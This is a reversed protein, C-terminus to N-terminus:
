QKVLKKVERYAPGLLILQYVANPLHSLDLTTELGTLQGEQLLVGLANYLQYTRAKSTNSLIIQTYDRLPNPVLKITGEGFDSEFKVVRIPSYSITGDLDQQRLRYYYEAGPEIAKDLYTYSTQGIYGNDSVLELAIFKDSGAVQREITFDKGQGDQIVEWNLLSHDRKPQATFALWEVPLATAFVITRDCSFVSGGPTIAEVFFTSINGDNLDSYTLTASLGTGINFVSSGVYLLYQTAGTVAGWSFTVDSMGNVDIEFQQGDIPSVNPVDDAEITLNLGITETGSTGTALITLSYTGDAVGSLNTLEVDFTNGDSVTSPNFNINVSGPLDTSQLSITAPGTVPGDIFGVEFTAASEGECISIPSDTNSLSSNATTFNRTASNTGTASCSTNIAEVFWTYSEPAILPPAGVSVSTASTTFINGGGDSGRIIYVKYQDANPDSTWSFTTNGSIGIVVNDAPTLLTVAAPAGEVVLSLDLSKSNSGDDAIVSFDYTGGTLGSLNGLTITVGLPSNGSNLNVPNGTSYSITAGSPLNMTTFSISGSYGLLSTLEFALNNDTNTGECITTSATTATIAFDEQVIAFNADSYDYFINDTCSIRIRADTEAVNPMTVSETGDNPTSAVLTTYTAGGDLSIEIEVNACDVATGSGTGGVDWTVAYPSNALASEGGNPSTVEFPGVDAVTVTMDDQVPCGFGVGTVDRLTVKFNLDRAVSPLAEWDITGEVFRSPSSNPLLSRMIPGNAEAGTPETNLASGLDYQEWCYTLPNTDPDSGTATLVFPTSKPITYDDGAMVSPEANAYMPDTIVTACSNGGGNVMYATMEIISAAHYYPDSNSQVNSIGCIGAYAQITSGSGPEYAVSAERQACNGNLSNFTHNGGFQHGLEHAVFDIYFPDGTPSALGTVGQAKFAASCPSNLRAIGGGGTSFVHGIDYNSTGIVADLTTQNQGLMASGNNNSYPDTTPNDYFVDTTNAILILRIGLDAETVENVRSIATTVESLVLPDTGGHFNYYEGTTAMALRYSRFTCDSVKEPGSDKGDTLDELISAETGCSHDLSTNLPYDNTYYVQYLDTAGIYLPEIYWHGNQDGTVSAHFGKYTWDLRIRRTPQDIDYGLATVIEPFRIALGKEMMQYRVIHFRILQGDPSPLELMHGTDMVNNFAPQSPSAHIYEMLVDAEVQYFRAENPVVIRAAEPREEASPIEEFVPSQALLVNMSISSFFFVFCSLTLFLILPTPTAPSCIDKTLVNKILLHHKM